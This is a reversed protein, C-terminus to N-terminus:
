ESTKLMKCCAKDKERWMCKYNKQVMQSYIVYVITLTQSGM